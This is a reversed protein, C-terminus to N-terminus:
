VSPISLFVRMHGSNRLQIEEFSSCIIRVTTKRLINYSIWIKDLKRLFSRCGSAIEYSFNLFCLLFYSKCYKKRSFAQTTKKENDNRKWAMGGYHKAFHYIVMARRIGQKLHFTIGKHRIKVALYFFAVWQFNLKWVLCLVESCPHYNCLRCLKGCFYFTRM